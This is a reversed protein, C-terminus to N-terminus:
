YENAFGPARGLRVDYALQLAPDRRTNAGRFARWDQNGTQNKPDVVVLVVGRWQRAFESARTVTNGFAPNAILVQDGELKRIVVFHSYGRVEILAIAPTRLTALSAVDPLKFGGAVFGLREAQQKLELMSFGAEAISRKQAESANAFVGDIITEETIDTRGHFHRLVTALAAAGCSVDKRQREMRAYRLAAVSSVQAVIRQGEGAPLIRGDFGHATPASALAAVLLALVQARASM